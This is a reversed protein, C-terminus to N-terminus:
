KVIIKDMKDSDVIMHSIRRSERNCNIIFNGMISSTNLSPHIFVGLQKLALLGFIIHSIEFHPLGRFQLDRRSLKGYPPSM